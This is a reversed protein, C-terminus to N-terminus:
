GAKEPGFLPFWSNDKKRFSGDLYLHAQPNINPSLLWNVIKKHEMFDLFSPWVWKAGPLASHGIWLDVVDGIEKFLDDLYPSMVSEELLTKRLSGDNDKIKNWRLTTIFPCLNTMVLIFSGKIKEPDTDLLLSKDTANASCCCGSPSRPEVKAPPSEWSTKNRNYAAIVLAAAGSCGTSFAVLDSYGGKYPFLKYLDSQMVQQSYNIGVACVVPLRKSVSKQSHDIAGFQVGGSIIGPRDPWFFETSIRQYHKEELIRLKANLSDFTEL